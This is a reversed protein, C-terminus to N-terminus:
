SAVLARRVQSLVAYRQRQSLTEIPGLNHCTNVVTAIVTLQALYTERQLSLTKVANHERLTAIRHLDDVYSSRIFSLNPVIDFLGLIM